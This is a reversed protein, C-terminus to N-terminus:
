RPGAQKKERPAASRACPTLSRRAGNRSRPTDSNRRDNTPPAPFRQNGPDGGTMASLQVKDDSTEPRLFPGIAVIPGAIDLSRRFSPRKLRVRGFSPAGAGDIAGNGTMFSGQWSFHDDALKSGIGVDPAVAIGALALRKM